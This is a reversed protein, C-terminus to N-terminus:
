FGDVAEEVGGAIGIAEFNEVDADMGGHHTRELVGIVGERFLDGVSGVRLVLAMAHDGPGARQESEGVSAVGVVDSGSEERLIRAGFFEVVAGHVVGRGGFVLEEIAADWEFGGEIEERVGFGDAEDFGAGQEMEEVFPGHAGAEVGLFFDVGGAHVFDGLEAFDMGLEGFKDARRAMEAGVDGGGDAGFAGVEAAYLDPEVEGVGGAADLRLSM